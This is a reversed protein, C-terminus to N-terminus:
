KWLGTMARLRASAFLLSVTHALTALDTGAAIDHTVLEDEGTKKAVLIASSAVYARRARVENCETRPDGLVRM